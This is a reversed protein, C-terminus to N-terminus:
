PEIITTVSVVTSDPAIALISASSGEDAEPEIVLAYVTGDSGVVVSWFEAGIRKLEVPWGPRVRGDRGVAVLSGGITEDRAQLPLYLTSDPGVAPAAFSPCNIEHRPDEYFPQEIPMAPTFPWGSIVTLSRDLAYVATDVESIVFATGDDAVLPAIPSDAYCGDQDMETMLALTKIPLKDSAAAVTGGRDFAVVRSTRHVFSGLTVLVWGGRGFAPGSAIGDIEVPWAALAGDRDIAAIRSEEAFGLEDRMGVPVVGYGVGDPGVAWDEGCCSEVLGVKTGRRVSGDGSITSLWAVHSITVGVDATDTGIQWEVYTVKDGVVRSALVPRLRVPWGAMSRGGADFAFARVDSPDNDYTPLDTGDCVIRVSGDDVALPHGCSTSNKITIPWGPLPRGSSDLRALVSGSPRPISVFLTGAPGPAM